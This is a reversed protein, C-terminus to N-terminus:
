SSQMYVGFSNSVARGFWTPGLAPNTNRPGYYVARFETIGPKRFYDTRVRYSGEMSEGPELCLACGSDFRKRDPFTLLYNDKSGDPYTWLFLVNLQRDIWFAQESVNRVAVRFAIDEGIAYKDRDPQITVLLGAAENAPSATGVVAPIRTDPLHFAQSTCGAGALLAAVCCLVIRAVM